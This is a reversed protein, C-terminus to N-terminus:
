PLDFVLLRSSPNLFDDPENFVSLTKSVNRIDLLEAATVTLVSNSNSVVPNAQDHVVPRYNKDTEQM